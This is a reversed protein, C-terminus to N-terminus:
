FDFGVGDMQRIWLALALHDASEAPALGYGILAQDLKLLMQPRMAEPSELIRKAEKRVFMQAELGGRYLLETDGTGALIELLPTILDTGNRLLSAEAQRAAPFGKEAQERLGRVGFKGYVKEEQQRRKETVAGGAWGTEKALSSALQSALGGGMISAGMGAIAPLFLTLAGGHTDIGGTADGMARVAEEGIQKLEAASVTESMGTEAARIFFPRLAAASQELMPLDRDTYIGNNNQDVLGPKPTMRASVVLAMVATDALFAATDARLLGRVTDEDALLEEEPGLAAQLTGSETYVEIAYLGAAPRSERLARCQAELEEAPSDCVLLAECGTKEEKKEWFVPVGTRENLQDLGRRFALDLIGSRNREGRTALRFAIVPLHFTETLRRREKERATDAEAYDQATAHFATETGSIKEEAAAATQEMMESM